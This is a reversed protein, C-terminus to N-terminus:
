KSLSPLLPSENSIPRGLHLPHFFKPCLNVLHTNVLPTPLRSFQVIKMSTMHTDDRVLLKLNRQHHTLGASM